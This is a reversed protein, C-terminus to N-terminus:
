ERPLVMEIMQQEISLLEFPIRKRYFQTSPTKLFVVWRKLIPCYENHIDEIKRFLSDSIHM